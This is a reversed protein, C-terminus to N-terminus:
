TAGAYALLYLRLEELYSVDSLGSRGMDLGMREGVVQADQESDVGLMSSGFSVLLWAQTAQQHGRQIIARAHSQAREQIRLIHPTYRSYVPDYGFITRAFAVSYTMAQGRRVGEEWSKRVIWVSLDRVSFGIDIAWLWINARSGVFRLFRSLKPTASLGVRELAAALAIRLPQFFSNVARAFRAAHPVRRAVLSLLRAWGAPSLGFKIKAEYKVQLRLGDTSNQPDHPQKFKCTIEFICYDEDWGVGVAAEAIEDSASVNGGWGDTLQSLVGRLGGGESIAEGMKELRRADLKAEAAAGLSTGARSEAQDEQGSVANRIDAALQRTRGVYAPQSDAGEVLMAEFQLELKYRWYNGVSIFREPPVNFKVTGWGIDQPSLSVIGM